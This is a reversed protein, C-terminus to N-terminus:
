RTPRFEPLLDPEVSIEKADVNSHNGEEINRHRRILERALLLSGSWVQRGSIEQKRSHLRSMFELPPPVLTLLLFPEGDPHVCGNRRRDVTVEQPEYEPEYGDSDIDIDIDASCENDHDAAMTPQQNNTPTMPPVSSPSSMRSDVIEARLCTSRQRM